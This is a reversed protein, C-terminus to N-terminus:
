LESLNMGVRLKVTIDDYEEFVNREVLKMRFIREWDSNDAPVQLELDNGTPTVEWEFDDNRTTSNRLYEPLLTKYYVLSMKETFFLLCLNYIM